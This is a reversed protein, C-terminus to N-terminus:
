KLQLFNYKSIYHKITLKASYLLNDPVELGKKNELFYKRLIETM